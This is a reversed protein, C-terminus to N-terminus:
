SILLYVIVNSDCLVSAPHILINLLLVDLKIMILMILHALCFNRMLMEHFM